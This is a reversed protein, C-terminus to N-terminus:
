LKYFEVYIRDGSELLGDLGLGNWTLTKNDTKFVIDVGLLLDPSRYNETSRVYIRVPLMTNVADELTIEKNSLVTSNVLVDELLVPLQGSPMLGDADLSAVGNAVGVLSNSVVSLQEATHTHGHVEADTPYVPTGLGAIRNGMMDFVNYVPEVANNNAM